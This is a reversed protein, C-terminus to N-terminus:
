QECNSSLKLKTSSAAWYVLLNLSLTNLCSIGVKNPFGASQSFPPTTIWSGLLCCWFLYIYIIYIIYLM